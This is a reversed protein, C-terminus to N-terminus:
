FGNVERMGDSGFGWFKRFFFLFVWLGWIWAAAAAARGSGRKLKKPTVARDGSAGEERV